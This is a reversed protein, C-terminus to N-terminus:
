RLTFMITDGDRPWALQVLVDDDRYWLERRMDGTIRFYRTPVQRGGLEIIKEEVPAVQIKRLDGSTTGMVLMAKTIDISWPNSTRIDPPAEAPGEPGDILFRDGDRRGRLEILTGNDNTRGEFSMLQGDRWVERRSEEHRHVVVFLAKAAIRLETEVVTEAGNRAIRHTATGLEGHASHEITYVYTGDPPQAPAATTTALAAAIAAAALRVANSPM